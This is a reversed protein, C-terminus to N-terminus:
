GLATEKLQGIQHKHECRPRIEPVQTRLLTKRAYTPLFAIVQTYLLPKRAYTPPFATVQTCLCSASGSM